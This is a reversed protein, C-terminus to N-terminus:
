DSRPAGFIPLHISSDERGTLGGGLLGSSWEPHRRSPVTIFDLSGAVM